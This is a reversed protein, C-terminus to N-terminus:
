GSALSPDTRVIWYCARLAGVLHEGWHTDYLMRWHWGAERWHGLNWLLLGEKVNRYIDGLDDALSNGVPDGPPDALPEFFDSYYTGLLGTIRAMCIASRDVELEPVDDELEVDPLRLAAVHLEALLLYIERFGEAESAPEREMADCFREAAVSFRDLEPPAHVTM